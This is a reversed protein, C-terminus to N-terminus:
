FWEPKLSRVAVRWVINIAVMAAVYLAQFPLRAAQGGITIWLVYFLGLAVAVYLLQLAWIIAPIGLPKYKLVNKM